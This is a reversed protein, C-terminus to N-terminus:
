ATICSKSLKNSFSWKHSIMSWRSNQYYANVDNLHIDLLLSERKKIRVSVGMCCQMMYILTSTCIMFLNGKNGVQTSCTEHLTSINGDDQIIMITQTDGTVGVTEMAGVGPMSVQGDLSRQFM